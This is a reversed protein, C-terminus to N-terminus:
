NTPCFMGQLANISDALLNLEDQSIGYGFVYITNPSDNGAVAVNLNNANISKLTLTDTLTFDPQNSTILGKSENAYNYIYNGNLVSYGFAKTYGQMGPVIPADTNNGNYSTILSAYSNNATFILFRSSAGSAFKSTLGLYVSRNVNEESTSTMFMQDDSKISINPIEFRYSQGDVMKSAIGNNRLEIYQSDPVVDVINTKYDVMSKDLSNCIMPIYLKTLKSFLGTNTTAGINKFFRELAIKQVDNMVSNGSAAIAALTFDSLTIPLDIRGINRASFDAGDIKIVM